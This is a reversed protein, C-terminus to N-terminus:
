LKELDVPLKFQNLFFFHELLLFIYYFLTKNELKYIEILKGSHLSSLIMQDSREKEKERERERKRERQCPRKDAAKKTCIYFAIGPDTMNFEDILPLFPCLAGGM